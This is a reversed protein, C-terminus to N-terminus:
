KPYIDYFNKREYQYVHGSPFQTNLYWGDSKGGWGWKMSLYAYGGIVSTNGPNSPPRYNFSDYGWGAFFEIFYQYQTNSESIGDCVWIHGGYPSGIIPNNTYGTMAVPRQAILESKVTNYNHNAFTYNYGFSSLANKVKTDTAGVDCYYYDLGLADGVARILAPTSYYTTVPTLTHGASDNPMNGWNYKHNDPSTVLAPHEHYKMIQALAIAGCGAYDCGNCLANFPYNQNWKTAILPVVYTYTSINKLGVITFEPPSGFMNAMNMIDQYTGALQFIWSVDELTNYANWGAAKYLYALEDMRDYMMQYNKAVSPTKKENTEYADWMNRMQTKISDSLASSTRIGEQTEEKWITLGGIEPRMEFRGEDNYALVPYYNRTAGVIVWGGEPYNIIYMSPNGKDMLAEVSANELSKANGKKANEGGLFMKAVAKAQESSVFTEEDFIVSVETDSNLYEFDGLYKDSCAFFFIMALLLVVSKSKEM